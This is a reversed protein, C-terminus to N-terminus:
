ARPAGPRDHASAGGRGLQVGLVVWCVSLAVLPVELLREDVASLAGGVLVAPITLVGIWWALRQPPCGRRDLLVLGGVLALSALALAPGYVDTVVESALAVVGAVVAIVGLTIVVARRRPPLDVTAALCTLAVGFLAPGAEFLWPPQRDAALIALGKAAWVLGGLTAAAAAVAGLGSM